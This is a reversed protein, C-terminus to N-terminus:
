SDDTMVCFEKKQGLLSVTAAPTSRTSSSGVVVCAKTGRAAWRGVAVHSDLTGVTVPSEQVAVRDVTTAKAALFFGGSFCLMESGKSSTTKYMVGHFFGLLM